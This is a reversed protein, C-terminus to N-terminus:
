GIGEIGLSSSLGFPLTLLLNIGLGSLSQPSYMEQKGLLRGQFRIIVGCITHLM